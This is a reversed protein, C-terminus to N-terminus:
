PAQGPAFDLSESQILWHAGVTTLTLNFIEDARPSDTRPTSNDGPSPLTEMKAWMSATAQVTASAGKITVSQFQVNDAGGGLYRVSGNALSDVNAQEVNVFNALAPGTFYQALRDRLQSKFQTIAVPGM